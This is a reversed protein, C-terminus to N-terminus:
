YLYFPVFISLSSLLSLTQPHTCSVVSSRNRAAKFNRFLAIQSRSEGAEWILNPWHEWKRPSPLIYVLSFVVSLSVAPLLQSSSLHLSLGWPEIKRSWFLHRSVMLYSFHWQRILGPCSYSGSDDGNINVCCWVLPVPHHWLWHISPYIHEHLQVRLDRPGAICAREWWKM